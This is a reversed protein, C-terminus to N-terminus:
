NIVNLMGGFVFLRSPQHSTNKTKHTARLSSSFLRISEMIMSIFSSYSTELDSNSPSSQKIFNDLTDQFFNWDTDISYLRPYKRNPSISEPQIRSSVFIPFHDSGWPDTSM